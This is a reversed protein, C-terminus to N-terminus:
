IYIYVYIYIHLTCTHIFIYIYAILTSGANEKNAFDYAPSPTVPEILVNEARWKNNEVYHRVKDIGSQPVSILGFEDLNWRNWRELDIHEYFGFCVDLLKCCQGPLDLYAQWAPILTANSGLIQVDPSFDRKQEWLEQLCGAWKGAIHQYIYIYIM